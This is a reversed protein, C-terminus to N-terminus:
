YTQQISLNHNERSNEHNTSGEFLSDNNNKPTKLPQLTGKSNQRLATYRDKKFDM